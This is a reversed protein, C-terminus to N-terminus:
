LRTPSKDADAWDDKGESSESVAESFRKVGDGVGKSLGRSPSGDDSEDCVMISPTSVDVPSFTMGLALSVLAM